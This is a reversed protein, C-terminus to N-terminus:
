IFGANDDSVAKAQRIYRCLLGLAASLLVTVFPFSVTVSMQLLVPFFLMQLLNGAVCLLVSVTATKACWRSLKESLSVTEASFPDNEMARALDGGWFLVLCGPLVSVLDALTLLTLMFYTPLLRDPIATNAEAAQRIKEWLSVAHDWGSLCLVLCGAADLLLSLTRGLSVSKELRELGRLVAWALLTSVTGVLVALGWMQGLDLVPNLLTPNILFYLGFFIQLSALPLLWNWRNRGRWLLGLAPLASLLLVIGWASLNGATGSLSLTRLWLGFREPASSRAAATLLLIFLLGAAAGAKKATM